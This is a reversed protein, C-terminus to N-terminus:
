PHYFKEITEYEYQKIESENLPYLIVQQNIDPRENSIMRKVDMIEEPTCCWDVISDSVFRLPPDTGRIVEQFQGGHFLLRWHYVPYAACLPIPYRSLYRLYPKVDRKDLIPNHSTLQRFDGTNYMMLVGYDAPPAEMSLQHLRITVSLRWGKAKLAKSVERLFAYYAPLSRQTYDCDVQLERDHPVDNTECMQMVRRVLREAYREPGHDLCDTTVYVTPVVKIGKPVPQSFTITANPELRGREDTVVDFFRCYIKGIRHATLFNREAQSLSFDTRWFYVSRATGEIPRQESCASLLLMVCGVLWTRLLVRSINKGM